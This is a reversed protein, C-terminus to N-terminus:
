RPAGQAAATKTVEITKTVDIPTMADKGDRNILIYRKGHEIPQWIRLHIRHLGQAVHNSTRLRIKHRGPPLRFPSGTHPHQADSQSMRKGDMFFEATCGRVIVEYALQETGAAAPDRIAAPFYLHGDQRGVPIDLRAPLDSKTNGVNKVILYATPKPKPIVGMGQWDGQEKEPYSRWSLEVKKFAIIKAEIDPRYSHYRPDETTPNVPYYLADLADADGHQVAWQIYKEFTARDTPQPPRDSCGVAILILFCVFCTTTIRM